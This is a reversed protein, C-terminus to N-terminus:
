NAFDFNVLGLFDFKAIEPASKRVELALFAKM